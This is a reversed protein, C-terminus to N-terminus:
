QTGGFRHRRRRRRIIEWGRQILKKAFGAISSSYVITKKHGVTISNKDTNPCICMAIKGLKNLYNVEGQKEYLTLCNRLKRSLIDKWFLFFIRAMFLYTFVTQREKLVKFAYRINSFLLFINLLIFRRRSPGNKNRIHNKTKTNPVSASPPGGFLLNLLKQVSERTSHSVICPYCFSFSFFSRNFIFLLRFLCLPCSCNWSVKKLTCILLAGKIIFHKESVCGAFVQFFVLFLPLVGWM